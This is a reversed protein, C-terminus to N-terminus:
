SDGLRVTSPRHSHTGSPPTRPRSGLLGRVQDKASITQALSSVSSCEGVNLAVSRYWRRVHLVSPQLSKRHPPKEFADPSRELTDGFDPPTPQFRQASARMSPHRALMQVLVHTARMNAPDLAFRRRETPRYQKLESLSIIHDVCPAWKTRPPADFDLYHCRWCKACLTAGALVQRRVKWYASGHRGPDKPM